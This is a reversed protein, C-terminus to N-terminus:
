LTAALAQELFCHPARSEKVGLSAIGDRRRSVSALRRAISLVNAAAETLRADRKEATKTLEAAKGMLTTRGSNGDPRLTPDSEEHKMSEGTIRDHKRINRLLGRLVLDNAFLLFLM